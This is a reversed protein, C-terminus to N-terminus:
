DAPALGHRWSTIFPANRWQWAARMDHSEVDPDAAYIPRDISGTYSFAGIAEVAIAVCVAIFFCVRGFGRLGAVVPVLMWILFPLLDTMYRPGWSLGGRWDAKAYLLIQIAVAASM